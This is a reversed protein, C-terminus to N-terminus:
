WPSVLRGRRPGDVWKNGTWTNGSREWEYAIGFSGSRAYYRTSFLNYRVRIGMKTGHGSYISFGGGALYNRALVGASADYRNDGVWVAATQPNRNLITNHAIRWGTWGDATVADYHSGSHGRLTHIYSDQLVSDDALRVGDEVHFVEIRRADVTGNDYAAIGALTDGPTGEITSDTIKTGRGYILVGYSGNTKVHVNHLRVNNAKITLQGTIRVNKIVTGDRLIERSGITRQPASTHGTNGKNPWGRPVAYAARQSAAEKLTAFVGREDSSPDAPGASASVALLGSAVLVTATLTSPLATARFRM